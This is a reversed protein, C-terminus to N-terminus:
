NGCYNIIEKWFMNKKMGRCSKIVKSCCCTHVLWRKTRSTCVLASVKPDVYSPKVNLYIHSTVDHKSQQYTLCPASFMILIYLLPFKRSLFISASAWCINDSALVFISIILICIRFTVWSAVLISSPLNQRFVPISSQWVRWNTEGIFYKLIYHYEFNNLRIILVFSNVRGDMEPKHFAHNQWYMYQNELSKQRIVSVFSKNIKGDLEKIFYELIYQYEFNITNISYQCM